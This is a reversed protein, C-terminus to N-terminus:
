KRCNQDSATVLRPLTWLASGVLGAVAVFVPAYGVLQILGGAVLPFFATTLSTAGVIGQYLARNANNTMEILLGDFAIKRASITVGMLLFALLFVSLSLGSLGLILLPLAAGCLICGRVVGLFGGTKLRRAWLLNSLIMGIFQVILCNGVQEGSLGYHRGAYAIYFPMLTLGFGTLNVLLIYRLLVPNGRLRAPIERIVSWFSYATGEPPVAPEEIATFGLGAILLLVAALAFMWIYNVPYTFEGLLWRSVPASVLLACSTLVQRRVFFGQRRELALSKGLIDTYSVGAFTGSLAFVLMLSFVLVMLSRAPLADAATLVLAVGGLAAVRLGIGLLLYGKKRPRTHLYSAFLLQGIIPTGVMIGTLLGIAFTGGGAHVVLSPLVTNIETLAVTLALFTAHWLFAYDNRYEPLSM